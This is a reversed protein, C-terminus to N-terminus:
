AYAVKTTVKGKRNARLGFGVMGFGLMMMAWTAPEPVPAVAPQVATLLGTSGANVNVTAGGFQFTSTLTTTNATAPPTNNTGLVLNSIAFNFVDANNQSFILNTGTFLASVGTGVDFDQTQGGQTFRVLFNSVSTGAAIADFDFNGTLVATGNFAQQGAFDGQLATNITLSVPTAAFAPAASMIAALSAAAAFAYKKM